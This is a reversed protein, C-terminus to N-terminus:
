EWNNLITIRTKKKGVRFDTFGKPVLKNWGNNRAQSSSKFIEAKCLLTSMWRDVTNDFKIITDEKSIPGFFLEIDSDPLTNSIFCIDSM